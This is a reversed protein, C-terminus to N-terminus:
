IDESFEKEIAEIFKHYSFNPNDTALMQAFPNIIYYRWKDSAVPNWSEGTTAEIDQKMRVTIYVLVAVIKIHDKRSM